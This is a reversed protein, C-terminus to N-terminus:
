NERSNDTSLSMYVHFVRFLTFLELRRYPNICKSPISLSEILWSRVRLNKIPILTRCLEPANVFADNLAFEGLAPFGDVKYPFCCSYKVTKRLIDEWIGDVCADPLRTM